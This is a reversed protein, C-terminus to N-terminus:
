TLASIAVMAFTTFAAPICGFQAASPEIFSTRRLNRWRAAAVTASGTTGLTPCECLKGDRGTRMTTANAAPPPTSMVARRIPWHSDSLSPWDNM